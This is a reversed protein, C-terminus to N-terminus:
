SCFLTGYKPCPSWWSIGLKRDIVRRKEIFLVVLAM